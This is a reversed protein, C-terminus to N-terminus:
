FLDGGLIGSEKILPLLALLKLIKISQDVKAKNEDNLHPKLANLLVVNKDNESSPAFLSKLKLIKGIDINEFMSADDPKKEDKDSSAEPNLGLASAMDKIQEMADESSLIEQLIDSFDEM